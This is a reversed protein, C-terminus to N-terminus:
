RNPTTDRRPGRRITYSRSQLEQEVMLGLFLRSTTGRLHPDALPSQHLHAAAGSDILATVLAAVDQTGRVLRSVSWAYVATVRGQRCLDIVEDPHPDTSREIRRVRGAPGTDAPDFGDRILLQEVAHDEALEQATPTGGRRLGLLVIALGDEPRQAATEPTNTTNTTTM